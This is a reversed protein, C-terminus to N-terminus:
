SFTPVMLCLEHPQDAIVDYWIWSPPRGGNQFDFIRLLEAASLRINMLYEVFVFMYACIQNKECFNRFGLIWSPPRGGNQFDFIRLEAACRGVRCLMAYRPNTLM